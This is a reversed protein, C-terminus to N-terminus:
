LAGFYERHTGISMQRHRLLDLYVVSPIASPVWESINQLTMICRCGESSWLVSGPTNRFTTTFSWYIKPPYVYVGSPMPSPLWLAGFYKRLSQQSAASPWWLNRFCNQHTHICRRAHRPPSHYIVSVSKTCARAPMGQYTLIFQRFWKLPHPYVEWCAETHFLLNGFCKWCMGMGKSAQWPLDGYIELIIKTPISVGGPM